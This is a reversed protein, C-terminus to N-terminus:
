QGAMLLDATEHANGADVWKEFGRLFTTLTHKNLRTFEDETFAVVGRLIRLAHPTMYGEGDLFPEDCITKLALPYREGGPNISRVGPIPTEDTLRNWHFCFAPLATEAIAERRAVERQRLTRRSPAVQGDQRPREPSPTEAPFLTDQEGGDNGGATIRPSGLSGGGEYPPYPPNVRLPDILHPTSNTVGHSRNEGLNDGRSQLTEGLNDGRLDTTTAVGKEVIRYLNPRRDARGDVGPEVEIFGGETLSRVCRQATRDSINSLNAIERITPIAMTGDNKCSDAIAILVHRDNGKSRSHMLVRAMMYASM